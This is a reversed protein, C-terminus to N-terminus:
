DEWENNAGGDFRNSWQQDGGEGKGIPLSTTLIPQEVLCSVKTVCPAIYEKKM